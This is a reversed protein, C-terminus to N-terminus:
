LNVNQLVKVFVKKGDINKEEYTKKFDVPNKIISEKDYIYFFIYKEKYHVMDSAVEESLSRENMSSRTCKLEIVIDESDILIDGRVTHHGSDEVKEMRAEPFTAQIVPYMLQQLDYENNIEICPLHEKLAKSCKGHLSDRYLSKCFLHFNELLKKVQEVANSKEEYLVAEIYDLISKKSKEM